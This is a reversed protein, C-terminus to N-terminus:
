VKNEQNKRVYEAIFKAIVKAGNEARLKEGLRAANNVIQPSLALDIAQALADSTLRKQPIPMAGVGIDFARRGWAPQDNGFPVIISPVGAAFGVATTGAGGHHVVAATKPFLWTHPISDLIYISSPVNKTRILGNWGTALIGRQGAKHLADFVIQTM